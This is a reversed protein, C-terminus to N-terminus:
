NDGDRIVALLLFKVSPSAAGLSNDDEAVCSFRLSGFALRLVGFIDLAKFAARLSEPWFRRGRTMGVLSALLFRSRQERLFFIINWIPHLVGGADEYCASAPPLGITIM